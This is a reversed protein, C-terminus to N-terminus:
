NFVCIVQESVNEYVFYALLQEHSCHITYMTTECVITILLIITVSLHNLIYIYIEVVLIEYSSSTACVLVM